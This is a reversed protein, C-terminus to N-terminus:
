VLLATFGYVLGLMLPAPIKASPGAQDVSNRSSSGLSTITVQDSPIPIGLKPNKRAKYIAAEVVVLIPEYDSCDTM